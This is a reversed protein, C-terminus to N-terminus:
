DTNKMKKREIEFMRKKEAKIREHDPAHRKIVNKRCSNYSAKSKSWCNNDDEKLCHNLRAVALKKCPVFENSTPSAQISTGYLLGVIVFLVVKINSVIIRWSRTSALSFLFPLIDIVSGIRAFM